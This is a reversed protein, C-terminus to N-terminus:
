LRPSAAKRAGVAVAERQMSSLSAVRGIM